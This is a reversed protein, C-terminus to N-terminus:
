RMEWLGWKNTTTVYTSNDVHAAAVPAYFTAGAQGFVTLCFTHTGAAIGTLPYNLTWGMIGNAGPEYVCDIAAQFTSDMYYGFCGHSTAGTIAWNIFGSMMIPGGSTTITLTSGTICPGWAASDYGTETMTATFTSNLLQNGFVIKDRNPLTVNGSFTTNTSFTINGYVTDKGFKDIKRNIHVAAQNLNYSMSQPTVTSIVTPRWLANAPCSLAIILILSKM